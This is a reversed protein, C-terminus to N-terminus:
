RARWRRQRRMGDGGKAATADGTGGGGTAVHPARGAIANIGRRMMTAIGVQRLRKGSRFRCLEREFKRM